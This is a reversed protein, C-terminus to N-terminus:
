SRTARKIVRHGWVWRFTGQIPPLFFVESHGPPGCQVSLGLPDTIRNGFVGCSTDLTLKGYTWNGEQHPHWLLFGPGGEKQLPLPPTAPLPPPSSGRREEIWLVSLLHNNRGQVGVTGSTSHTDGLLLCLLWQVLPPAEWDSSGNPEKHAPGTATWTRPGQDETRQNAVSRLLQQESPTSPRLRGVM